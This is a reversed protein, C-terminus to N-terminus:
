TSSSEFIITQGDKLFAIRFWDKKINSYVVEIQSEKIDKTLTFYSQTRGIKQSSTDIEFNLDESFETKLKIYDDKDLQIIASAEYDGHFDPIDSKKGIINASSALEFGTNIKFEEKYFNDTPFFVIYTQSVAIIFLIFIYAKNIQRSRILTLKGSKLFRKKFPLYCFYLLGGILGTVLSVVIFFLGVIIFYGM